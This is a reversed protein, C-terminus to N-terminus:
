APSMPETKTALWARHPLKQLAAIRPRFNIFWIVGIALSLVCTIAYGDAVIKDECACGTAPDVAGPSSAKPSLRQVIQLLPPGAPKGCDAVPVCRKITTVGVLYLSATAPWASGLNAITNLITMYTGGIAPDSVRNFFAMQAVFATGGVTSAGVAVLLLVGYFWGPIGGGGSSFAAVAMVSGFGALGTALRPPYCQSWLLLPKSDAGAAAFYKGSVWLQVLITVPALLAGMMALDEKPMGAEILKLPTVASFVGIAAQCTLLLLAAKRVAPLQLVAVMERYATTLSDLVGGVLPTHEDGRAFAVALTSALFVYGWFTTFGGLTVLGVDSAAAPARLYRNCFDSSYGALFGTYAVFYGISQGIANCTAGLEKNRPSLITLALGDVAIDQTAALFYFCLFLTTLTGVDPDGGGEGLWGDIRTGGAWLLLLGIVAQVPIIWTKRRGITGHYVSDVLPAWLL